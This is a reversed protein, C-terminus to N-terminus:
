TANVPLHINTFMVTFSTFSGPKSAVNIQLKNNEAAIKVISLGIGSSAKNHLAARPSYFYENFINPLDKSEIGIGYDTIILNATANVKDVESRIDVSSNDHSYTIANSIINKARLLQGGFVNSAPAYEGFILYFLLNM